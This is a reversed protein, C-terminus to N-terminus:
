SIFIQQQLLRIAQHRYHHHLRKQPEMMTYTSQHDDMYFIPEFAISPSKQHITKRCIDLLTGTVIKGTAIGETTFVREGTADVLALACHYTAIIPEQLLSQKVYADIQQLLVDTAKEWGGQEEAFRKTHVGPFHNLCHIQIGADDGLCWTKATTAAQKAKLLANEVFTRGTEEPEMLFDGQRINCPWDQLFYQFEEWKGRNHTAVILDSIDLGDILSYLHSVANM